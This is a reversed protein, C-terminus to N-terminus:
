GHFAGVICVDSFANAKGNTSLGSIFSLQTVGFQLAGVRSSFVVAVQKVSEPCATANFVFSAAVLNVIESGM